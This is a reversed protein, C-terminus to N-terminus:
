RLTTDVPVISHFKWGDPTTVVYDSEKCSSFYTITCIILLSIAFSFVFAITDKKM